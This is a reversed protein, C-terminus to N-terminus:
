TRKFAPRIRSDAPTGNESIHLYQGLVFTNNAYRGGVKAAAIVAVSPHEREFFEETQAQNTLDLQSHFRLAFDSYGASRLARVIASGVMGNHGAVFIKDSERM